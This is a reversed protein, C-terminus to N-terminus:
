ASILAEEVDRGTGALWCQASGLVDTGFTVYQSGVNGLANDLKRLLDGPFTTEPLNLGAHHVSLTQVEGVSGEVRHEAAQSQHIHRM